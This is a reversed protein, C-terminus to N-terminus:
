RSRLAPAVVVVVVDEVVAPVIRDVLLGVVTRARVRM